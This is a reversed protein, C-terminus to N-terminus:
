KLNINFGDTKYIKDDKDIIVANLELQPNEAKLKEILKIAKDKGRMLCTTSLGDCLGSNGKKAVVTIAEVDTDAPYGTAPDLIHHYIVGDLEFMREYVGSTVVTMDEVEVSGIIDSRDSYPREVGINWLSGDPKTGIAVINGGLNVVASKVGNNELYEATRDAIYGKAIAGLDIKAGEKSLSIENEDDIEIARYDVTQIAEKIAKKDPVSPSESEFDWLDTLAGVTIDFKGDSLESMEIGEKVLEYTDDSVKVPEGQARNIRDVDSGAITKSLMKEYSRIEKFAGKLIEDAEAEEMGYVSIECVTNLCYDTKSIPEEKSAENSCGIQTIIAFAVIGVIALLKLSKLKM